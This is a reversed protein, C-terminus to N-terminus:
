SSIRVASVSCLLPVQKALKGMHNFCPGEGSLWLSLPWETSVQLNGLAMLPHFLLMPSESLREWPRSPKSVLLHPALTTSAKAEKWLRAVREHLCQTGATGSLRQNGKGDEESSM